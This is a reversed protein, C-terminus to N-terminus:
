KAVLLRTPEIEASRWDCIVVRSELTVESTAVSLLVTAETDLVRSALISEEIAATM